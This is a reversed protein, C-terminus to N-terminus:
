GGVRPKLGYKQRFPELSDPKDKQEADSKATTNSDTPRPRPSTGTTEFVRKVDGYRAVWRKGIKQAPFKGSRAMRIFIDRPFRPCRQDVLADDAIPISPDLTNSDVYSRGRSRPQLGTSLDQPAVCSPAAGLLLAESSVLGTKKLRIETAGSYVRIGADNAPLPGAARYLLGDPHHEAQHHVWVQNGGAVSLLCWLWQPSRDEEVDDFSGETFDDLSVDKGPWDSPAASQPEPRFPSSM